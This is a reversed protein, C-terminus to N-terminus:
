LCNIQICRVQINIKAQNQSTSIKGPGLFGFCVEHFATSKPWFTERMVTQLWSAQIPSSPTLIIQSEILCHTSLVEWHSDPQAQIGQLNQSTMETLKAYSVWERWCSRCNLHRKRVSNTEWSSRRWSNRRTNRRRSQLPETWFLFVFWKNKEGWCSHHHLNIGFVFVEVSLEFRKRSPSSLKEHMHIGHGPPRSPEEEVMDGWSNSQRWSEHAVLLAHFVCYNNDPRFFLTWISCCVMMNQWCTMGIWVPEVAEM